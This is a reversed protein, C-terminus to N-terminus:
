ASLIGILQTTSLTWYVCATNTALLHAANTGIGNIQASTPPYVKVANAGDNYVIQVAGIQAIALLVGSDAAATEVINIGASLLTATAQTTGAATIGTKADQNGHQM